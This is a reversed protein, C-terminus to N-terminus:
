RGTEVMLHPAIGVDLTRAVRLDDNYDIEHVVGAEADNVYARSTDVQVTPPHEPDLEELLPTSAEQEGTEPDLSYLTGDGTLALVPMDEGAATVAVTDDLDVPRWEAAALDLVWPDGDTSLAALVASGPRHHFADVRGSAPYPLMEADLSDDDETVHLAGEECGVVLGRRTVAAGQPAECTEDLTEGPDGDRGVTRVSGDSSDATVLVGKYPYAAVPGDTVVDATEVSGDELGERILVLSAGGTDTVSTLVTDTVVDSGIVGDLAGVRGAGTRYYHNHDGHDVTWVGSDFVEFTGDGSSNLYAFRGDGMIGDVGPVEGLDSVEETILDLLHVQGTDSDAVVLRSQPEATEEAGEVYGHPTEEDEPTDAAEPSGGLCGSVLLTILAAPFLATAPRRM